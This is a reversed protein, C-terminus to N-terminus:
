AREGLTGSASSWDGATGVGAREGGVGLRPPQARERLPEADGVAEHEAAADAAVVIGASSREASATTQTGHYSGNPMTGSSAIAQPTGTM